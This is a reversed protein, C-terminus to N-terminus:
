FCHRKPGQIIAKHHAQQTEAHKLSLIQLIEDSLPLIGNSMHNTLSRLAGNVNSKQM